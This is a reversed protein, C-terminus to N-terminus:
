KWAAEQLNPRFQASYESLSVIVKLAFNLQVPEDLLALGMFANPVPDLTHRLRIHGFTMLVRSGM